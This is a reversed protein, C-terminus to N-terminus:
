QGIYSNIYKLYKSVQTFVGPQNPLACAGPSGYSMIGVQVYGRGRSCLLPGGYDGKCPGSGGEMDGACLVNDTLEPYTRKCVSQPIIPLQLQQLTEPYPLPSENGVDGWGIIWCASSTDFTDGAEPLSVSAVERSFRIKKLLRVLALDNVYGNSSARFGPHLMYSRIGMYGVSAKRLSHSGVWAMSRHTEPKPNTAWCHAATLLWESNLITGGCRWKTIGDSTINLYVMWPWAGKRADQGGVISSGVDAGQLSGGTQHLMAIVSIVIYLEM